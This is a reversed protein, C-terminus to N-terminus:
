SLNNYSCSGYWAYFFVHKVHVQIQLLLPHNMIQSVSAAFDFVGYISMKYCKKKNAASTSLRLCLGISYWCQLELRKPEAVNQAPHTFFHFLM